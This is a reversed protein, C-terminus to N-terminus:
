CRSLTDSRFVFMLWQLRLIRVGISVDDTQFLQAFTFFFQSFAAWKWQTRLVSLQEAFPDAPLPVSQLEQAAEAQTTNRARTGRPM